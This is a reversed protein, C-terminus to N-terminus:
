STGETNTRSTSLNKYRHKILDSSFHHLHYFIGKTIKFIKM